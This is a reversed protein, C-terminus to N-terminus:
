EFERMMDDAASLRRFSSFDPAAEPKLQRLAEALMEPNLTPDQASIVANVSLGRPARVIEIDGIMSRIDTIVPGQKAKKLVELKQRTFLESALAEAKDPRCRDYEFRGEVFLWKIEKTKRVAEYVKLVEIGEPLVPNLKKPIDLPDTFGDPSFDMLECLSECGVPLPLAISIQPHPNYGESYRLPLGARMFARHLLRMLDLHSIYAARGTKTFKM